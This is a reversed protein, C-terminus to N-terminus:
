PRGNKTVTLATWVESFFPQLRQLDAFGDGIRTCRPIPISVEKVITAPRPSLVIVRDALRLAENIDHTVLLAILDNEDVLESVLAYLEMRLVYDSNSFPEDLLLLHAGSLIARLISTRQQMGGSLSFPYAGSFTSLGFRRLLDDCRRFSEPGLQGVLELGFLVNQRVTRWPILASEQFVYAARSDFVLDGKRLLSGSTSPLLGAVINLLSTKGCGSPGIIAVIEAGCLVTSISNLVPLAGGGSLRYILSIDNLQLTSRMVMM